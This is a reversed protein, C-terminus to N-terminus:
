RFCGKKGAIFINFIIHLSIIIIGKPLPATPAPTTSGDPQVPCNANNCVQAGTEKLKGDTTMSLVYIQNSTCLSGGFEPTPNDCIRDRLQQGEGCTKPCDSWHGWSGWSGDM